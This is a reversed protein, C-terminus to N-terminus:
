RRRCAVLHREQDCRSLRGRHPEIWNREGSAWGTFVSDHREALSQGDRRNVFRIAGRSGKANGVRSAPSAASSAQGALNAAPKSSPAQGAPAPSASPPPMTIPPSANIGPGQQEGEMANQKLPERGPGNGDTMPASAAATTGVEDAARASPLGIGLATVAKEFATDVEDYTAARKGETALALDTQMRSLVRMADNARPPATGAPQLSPPSTVQDPIPAAVPPETPAPGTDTSSPDGASIPVKRGGSDGGADAADTVPLSGNNDSATPDLPEGAMAPLLYETM